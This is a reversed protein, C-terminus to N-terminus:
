VAEFQVEWIRGKIDAAVLCTKGDRDRFALACSGQGPDDTQDKGELVFAMASPKTEPCQIGGM